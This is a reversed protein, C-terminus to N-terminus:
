LVMVLSSVCFAAIMMTISAALHVHKDSGKSFFALILFLLIFVSYTILGRQFISADILGFFGKPLGLEGMLEVQLRLLFWCSLIFACTKLRKGREMTILAVPIWLLDINNFLTQTTIM